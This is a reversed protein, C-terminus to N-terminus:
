FVRMIKGRVYLKGAEHASLVWVKSSLYYHTFIVKNPWINGHFHPKEYHSLSEIKNLITSDSLEILKLKRVYKQYGQSSMEAVIYYEYIDSDEICIQPTNTKKNLINYAEPTGLSVFLYYGLLIIPCISIIILIFVIM